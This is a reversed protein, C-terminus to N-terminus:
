LPIDATLSKTWVQDCRRYWTVWHGHTYPNEEYTKTWLNSYITYVHYVGVSRSVREVLKQYRGISPWHRKFTGHVAVPLDDPSSIVQLELDELQRKYPKNIKKWNTAYEGICHYIIFSCVEMSQGQNAKIWYESINEENVQEILTFRQKDNDQVVSQM